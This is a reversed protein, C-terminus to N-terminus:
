GALEAGPSGASRGTNYRLQGDRVEIVEDCTAAVDHDHTAIVLTTGFQKQVKTLLTLIEAATTSDLNGTPEDALLLTPRVVLARAIAVRQQQGGSLQEPRSEARDGLGVATLMELARARREKVPGRNMLPAAVNDALTLASLLHFQQFIFGIGARYDALKGRKLGTLEVGGVSIRGEDPVDIAGILHLLTSKGSGSPGILATRSGSAIELTVDDAARVLSHDGLRYCKSVGELRVLTSM